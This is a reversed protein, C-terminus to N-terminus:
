FGWVRAVRRWFSTEIAGGGAELSSSNNIEESRNSLRKVYDVYRNDENGNSLQDGLVILLTDNNRIESIRFDGTRQGNIYYVLEKGKSIPYKNNEFMVFEQNVEVGLYMMLEGWVVGTDHIHAVDGVKDHLHVRDGFHKEQNIEGTCPKVHMYKEHGFDLKKDDIFVAFNAHYHTEQVKPIRFTLFVTVVAVTLLVSLYVYVFIKM